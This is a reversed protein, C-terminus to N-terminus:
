PSKEPSKGYNEIAKVLDARTSARILIKCPAAASSAVWSKVAPGKSSYRETKRFIM